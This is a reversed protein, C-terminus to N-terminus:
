AQYVGTEMQVALREARAPTEEYWKSSRMEAAARSWNQYEMASLFQHFGQVGGLGLQFLMSAIVAKRETTLGDYWPFAKEAELQVNVIDSMLLYDAEASSIGHTDLARGTGITPHGKVTTGPVIPEGTADDYVRLRSGEDRGLMTELMADVPTM